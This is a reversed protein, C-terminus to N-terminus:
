VEGEAAKRAKEARSMEHGKKRFAGVISGRALYDQDGSVGMDIQSVQGGEALFAEVKSDIAEPQIDKVRRIMPAQESMERIEKEIGLVTNKRTTPRSM